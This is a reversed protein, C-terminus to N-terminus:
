NGVRVQFNVKIEVIAIITVEQIYFVRVNM